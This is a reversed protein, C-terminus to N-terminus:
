FIVYCMIMLARSMLLYRQRLVNIYDLMAFQHTYYQCIIMVLNIEELDSNHILCFKIKKRAM